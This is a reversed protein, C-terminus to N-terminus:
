LLRRSPKKHPPPGPPPEYETITIRGEKSVGYYGYPLERSSACASAVSQSTLIFPPHLKGMAALRVPAPYKISNKGVWSKWDTGSTLTLKSPQSLITKFRTTQLLTMMLDIETLVVSSLSDQVKANMRAPKLSTLVSRMDTFKTQPAAGSIKAIWWPSLIIIDLGGQRDVVKGYDSKVFRELGTKGSKADKYNQDINITADPANYPVGGEVANSEVGM